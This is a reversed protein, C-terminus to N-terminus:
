AGLRRWIEYRGIRTEFAYSDRVARDLTGCGPSEGPVAPAAESDLVVYRVRTLALEAAIEEQVSCDALLDANMMDYRSANPRDALFLLSSDNAVMGDHRTSGVYVPEGDSTRERIYQVMLRLELEDEKSVLLGGSRDGQLLIDRTGGDHRSWVFPVCALFVGLIRATAFGGQRAGRRTDEAFRGAWLLVMLIAPVLHDEDPRSVLYLLTPASFAVLFGDVGIDARKRYFRHAVAAATLWPVLFAWTWWLRKLRVLPPAGGSLFRIMESFPEPYPIGMKRGHLDLAFGFLQDFLDGPPTGAAILGPYFLCPVLACGAFAAAARRGSKERAALVGAAGVLFLFPMEIRFLLGMGAAAGAAATWRDPKGTGTRLLCYLSVATALLAPHTSNGGHDALHLVVAAGFAATGAANPPMFRRAILFLFLTLLSTVVVDLVRMTGLSPGLVRFAAAGLYYTGPPYVSFFDFGPFGM